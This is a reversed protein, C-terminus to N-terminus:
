GKAFSTLSDIGILAHLLVNTGAVCYSHDTFEDPSHSIGDKSPVFVMAAPATTAIVGADHGAGSWLRTRGLGLEDCVCEFTELIPEAFAQPPKASVSTFEMGLEDEARARLADEARLLASQDGGRFEVDLEVLGPIVNPSGPFVRLNGVTGVIGLSIALDRVFTVLPAAGVLADLRQDMPTTGAHNALGHCKIRYRRIGVVGQVIGIPVACEELVAGQEVHLELFAAFRGDWVAAGSLLLEPDLGAQRLHTSLPVGDFATAGITKRDMDGVFARSGITAAGMTAEESQFNVMALSHRLLVGEERIARVCALGAVVGLAGDYRGGDPVSDTHSGVAIPDLDPDSGPLLAISNGAADRTVTLGLAELERDVWDRARQDAESYAVRTVGGGDSAGFRALAAFDEALRDVDIRPTM